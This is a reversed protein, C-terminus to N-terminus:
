ARAIKGLLEDITLTTKPILERRLTLLFEYLPKIPQGKRMGGLVKMYERYVHDPAFQLLKLKHRNLRKMLEEIEQSSPETQGSQRAFVESVVDLDEILQEYFPIKRYLANEQRSLRSEERSLEREKLLKKIGFYYALGAAIGVIGLDFLKLLIAESFSM